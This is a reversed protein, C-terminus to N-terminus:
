SESRGRISPFQSIGDHILAGPRSVDESKTELPLRNLGDANCHSEGPRYELKYNYASLLLAWRLIRAASRDPFGKDEAFLGLLPKHDTVMTFKHGYLYHHFKKGCIGIGIRRERHGYNREAPSLTRSAYCVPRESEDPIKHSLVAGVGYPSADAHVVILFSPDFHVLLPAKSLMVKTKEFAKAQQVGWIRVSGNRLLIHLPESMTALAPLYNQYYNLMGLYSRLASVNTPAPAKRVAEVNGLLPRVGEKSIRHGCYTVEPQLFRCKSLNVTLGAESLRGTVKDLNDLHDGDARGSILIDDVRVKVFPIGAMRKDMERQFIGTASHVGFQLRYPQYLGRHTSITLLERSADDLELQQYAQSLDLKSFKQGGALTALQESTNPIPYNDCPAVKNVTVKYDGCIRVPGDIDKSDKLVPVIHAAWRSYEVRKWIGQKELKDLENDVRSKMAYPVSRPKFYVPKVNDPVPIHVKFNKMCGLRGSFVDPYKSKIQEVREDIEVSHIEVPFLENWSLKIQSLWDRGLLTPVKGELVIMPLRFMESKYVVNLEGVGKPRM